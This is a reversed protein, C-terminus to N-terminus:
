VRALRRRLDGCMMGLDPLFPAASDDREDNRDHL